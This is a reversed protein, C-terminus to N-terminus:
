IPVLIYYKCKPCYPPPDIRLLKGCEPCEFEYPGYLVMRSGCESCIIEKNKLEEEQKEALTSACNECFYHDNGICKLTAERAGCLNCNKKNQTM